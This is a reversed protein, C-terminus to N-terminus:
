VNGPHHCGASGAAEVVRHGPADLAGVTSPVVSAIRVEAATDVVAVVAIDVAVVAGVEVAALASNM